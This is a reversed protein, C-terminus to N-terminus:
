MVLGVHPDSQPQTQVTELGLGTVVKVRREVGDGALEVADVLGVEARCGRRPRLAAPAASSRGGIPGYTSPGQM